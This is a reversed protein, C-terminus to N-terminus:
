SPMREILVSCRAHRAVSEAVSGLLFKKLGKRGHSGLVILDAKWEEAVELIATRPDAEVVRTNVAFGAAQLDTSAAAVSAKAEKMQAERIEAMEPAYGPAMQPPTAYSPAEVVQLVLVETNKPVIRSAVAKTATKSFISGDTALLIKM